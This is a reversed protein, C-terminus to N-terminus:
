AASNRTSGGPERGARAVEHDDELSRVSKAQGAADGGDSKRVQGKRMTLLSEVGELTRKLSGAPRSM